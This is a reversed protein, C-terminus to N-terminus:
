YDTIPLYKRMVEAKMKAACFAENGAESTQIAFLIEVMEEYELSFENGCFIIKYDKDKTPKVWEEKEIRLGTEVVVVRTLHRTTRRPDITNRQFYKAIEDKM